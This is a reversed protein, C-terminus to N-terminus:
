AGLSTFFFTSVDTDQNGGGPGSLASFLSFLLRQLTKSHMQLTRSLWKRAAQKGKHHRKAPGLGVLVRKKIM